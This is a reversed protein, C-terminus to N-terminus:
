NKMRVSGMSALLIKDTRLLTASAVVFSMLFRHVLLLSNTFLYHSLINANYNLGVSIILLPSCTKEEREERMPVEPNTYRSASEKCLASNQM